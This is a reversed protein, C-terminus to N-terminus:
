ITISVNGNDDSTITTVGNLTITGEKDDIVDLINNRIIVMGSNEYYSVVEDDVILTVNGQGDNTTNLDYNILTVNGNDNEVSYNNLIAIKVNGIDDDTVIYIGNDSLINAKLEYLGNQYSLYVEAPVPDSSYKFYDSRIEYTIGNRKVSFSFYYYPVTTYTIKKRAIIGEVEIYETGDENTKKNQLTVLKGIAFEGKIIIKYPEKITFGKIFEVYDGNTLDIAYPNGDKDYVYTPNENSCIVDFIKYNSIINVTGDGVNEVKILSGVGSVEIRVIFKEETQVVFGYKTEVTCVIKYENNQELDDDTEEIGGVTWRLLEGNAVNYKLGSGDLIKGFSDYLEFKYSNIPLSDIQEYKVSFSVSTSAVTYVGDSNDCNEFNKFTLVPTEYCYFIVENSALSENNEDESDERSYVYIKAIYKKGNELSSKEPHLQHQLKMTEITCDYVCNTPNDYENIVVRNKRAVYSGYELSFTLIPAKIGETGFRADFAPISSLIPKSAM